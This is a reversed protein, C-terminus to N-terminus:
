ITLLIANAVNSVILDTMFQELDDNRPANAVFCVLNLM